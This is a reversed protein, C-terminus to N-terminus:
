NPKLRAPKFAGYLPQNGVCHLKSDIRFDEKEICHTSDDHDDSPPSVSLLLVAHTASQSYMRTTTTTIGGVATPFPANYFSPHHRDTQGDTHRDTQRTGQGLELISLGLIGLISLISPQFGMVCTVQSVLPWFTVLGILATVSLEGYV